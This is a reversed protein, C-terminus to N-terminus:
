RTHKTIIRKRIRSLSVPTIGLLTALHKDPVRQLLDPKDAILQLYREEPTQLVFSEIRELSQALMDLVFQYRAQEFAPNNALLQQILNYDIELISTKELAHYTFRSPQQLLISDYSAIIQQEWRLLVTTEIGKENVHYCRIMGENIYALRPSNEGERIFIEGPELVRQRTASILGPLAAPDLGKFLNIYFATKAADLM